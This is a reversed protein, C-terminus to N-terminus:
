WNVCHNFCDVRSFLLMDFIMTFFQQQRCNWKKNLLGILHKDNRRMLSISLICYKSAYMYHISIELYQKKKIYSYKEKGLINGNVDVSHGTYIIFLYIYVHKM